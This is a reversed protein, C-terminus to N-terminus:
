AGDDEIRWALQPPLGRLVVGVAGLRRLLCLGAADASRLESLELCVV